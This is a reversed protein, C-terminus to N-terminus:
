SRVPNNAYWEEYFSRVIRGAERWDMRQIGLGGQGGWFGVNRIMDINQKNFTEVAKFVATLILRLEFAPNRPDDRDMAVGSIVYPPMGQNRDELKTKLVQAQHIIPRAGWREAYPLSFYFADLNPLRVSDYISLVLANVGSCQALGENLSKIHNENEDSIVIKLIDM